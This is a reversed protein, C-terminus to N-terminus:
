KVVAPRAGALAAQLRLWSQHDINELKDAAWRATALDGLKLTVLGLGELTEPNGPELEQARWLSAKAEPLRGQLYYEKGLNLYAVPNDENIALSDRLFKEALVSNGLESYLVGLDNLLRTTDAGKASLGRQLYAIARPVDGLKKAFEAATEYYAAHDPMREIRDDLLAFAEVWRGEEANVKALNIAVIPNGPFRAATAELMQREEPFRGVRGYYAALTESARESGPVHKLNDEYLAVPDNWLANRQWTLVACVLLSVVLFVKTWKEGWLAPLGDLLVLVFGFMPLYLRHEFLPDLPIVSSEVALGLFFWAVGFALLPRSRRMSWVVRCLLLLGALALANQMTLLESVVPYDHELAQGYPFVLLRLYVWIVSFQTVLYNVPSNHELSALPVFLAANGGAASVKVLMSCGAMLPAVFFPLYDCIIQQRSRKVKLPVLYDYAVLVLPLTATNEKSLVACAGAMLAALYPLFFAPSRRSCGASLADRARLYLLFALLFFFAGLVTARQVLYTVAQTQLPHCVYLLTGLLSLWFSALLRNLLLWVLLGCGAHLAINTLHLSPLSLKSLRYNLALSLDTLGRQGFLNRVAAQLDRLLYKDIIAWQDDLYFPARLTHGYLVAVALLIAAVALFGGRSPKCSWYKM